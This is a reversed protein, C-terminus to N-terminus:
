FPIDDDMDAWNSTPPHQLKDQIKPIKDTPTGSLVPPKAEGAYELWGKQKLVWESAMLIDLLQKETNFLRHISSVQSLPFWEVRVVGNKSTISFQIAKASEGVIEGHLQRYINNYAM